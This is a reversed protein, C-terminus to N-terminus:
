VTFKSGLLCDRFKKIVAWKLALLELKASSYNHMSQESPRLTQSAYTTVYVKSTDDVQSLIAGLGRLLADSELIFERTFNPYGLVPATTLAVKLANFTKQDESAWVFSPKILDLKKDESTTVKETVKKSKTKKINTPGVLQHLCKAVHAFNPIFQCYYSALGLFSHWEKANKPGPWGRVKDVKEPNACIVDASLVLGLFIMSAQFFSMKKLKIKFTFSTLQNFVLEIQDLMASVDPAFICIDDPYLLLIVFQQDGLFYEMLRCFSSKANSLSFPIHTFEYLVSSGGRFATKKMDDETMALQLYGQGLDFSILVNSSHVMQLAEDICPLSFADRITISNLKRYDVCLCIKGNKISLLLKPPM